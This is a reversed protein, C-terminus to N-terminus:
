QLEAIAQESRRVLDPPLAVYDLSPAVRQGDHIAWTLFKAVAKTKAADGSARPLVVFSIAAVPYAGPDKADVLTGGDESTAARTIATLSPAVFNGARNRVLAMALGAQKAYALEVYGIANPTSKVLATVGENGKAGVGVPFHPSTGAGVTESWPQSTRSLYTTFAASTGSGDARYVVTIPASPLARDPNVARLQEDDWRVVKGMFVNAVLEPTLRLDGTGPVNYALVVAGITMPVRVLNPSAPRPDDTAGFDVVGDNVGRVGAASGISQYNIRVTPEVKAYDAAWRSYLPFPLTAGAGVLVQPSTESPTRSCALSQSSFLTLAVLLLAAGVDESSTRERVRSSAPPLRIDFTTGKGVDSSVVISGGMAEVLHKVISLGLGTGGMERSRGADVRYFREFLRPLHAKDIGPGDDSVRLRVGTEAEEADVTVTAGEQCYKVANDVLNTVVQELARRDADVELGKPAELKLTIRKKDARDRFLGLLHSAFSDFAFREPRLRLERSEIRSLDLLDEILRQLRTANRDIIQLFRKAGEPDKALAMELTESASLIATVPTRLEHSVNAVFDRRLSELRRIDTVDFFVALLGGGHQTFSTGRVLLRRPKLGGLEVEGSCTKQTTRARDLLEKLEAHRVVELLPQGVADARLLLMERLAPNMLAVKGDKDLLLVGEQMGNLIRSLLDRETRLESVTESLSGALQDFAAGLQGVDEDRTMRARVGLDGDHMRRARETLPRVAEDLWRVAFSTVVFAVLAGSALSVVLSTTSWPARGFLDLSLAVSLSVLVWIALLLRARLRGRL